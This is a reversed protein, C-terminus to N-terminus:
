TRRVLLGPTAPPQWPVMYKQWYAKIVLPLKILKEPTLDNQPFLDLKKACSAAVIAVILLLIANKFITNKM